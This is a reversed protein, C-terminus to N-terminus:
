KALEDDLTTIVTSDIIHKFQKEDDSKRVTGVHGYVKVIDDWLADDGKNIVIYNHGKDVRYVNIDNNKALNIDDDSLKVIVVKNNKVRIVVAQGKDIGFVGTAIHRQESKGGPWLGVVQGGSKGGRGVSKIAAHSKLFSLKNDNTNKTM